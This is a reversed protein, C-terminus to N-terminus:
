STVRVVQDAQGDSFYAACLAVILDSDDGFSAVEVSMAQRAHRLQAIAGARLALAIRKIALDPDKPDSPRDGKKHAAVLEEVQRVNM